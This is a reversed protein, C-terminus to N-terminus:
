SAAGYADVDDDVDLEGAQDERTLVLPSPSRVPPLPSIPLAIQRPDYGILCTQQWRGDHQSYRNGQTAALAAYGLSSFFRNM